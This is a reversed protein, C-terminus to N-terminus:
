ERSRGLWTQCIFGLLALMLPTLGLMLIFAIIPGMISSFFREGSRWLGPPRPIMFFYTIPIDLGGSPAEFLGSNLEFAKNAEVLIAVKQDQDDGGVGLTWGM